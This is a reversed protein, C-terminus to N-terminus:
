PHPKSKKGMTSCVNPLMCQQIRMQPCCHVCDRPTGRMAVPRFCPVASMVGVHEGGDPGCTTCQASSVM